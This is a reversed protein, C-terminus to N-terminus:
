RSTIAYRVLVDEVFETTVWDESGAFVLTTITVSGERRESSEAPRGLLGEVETRTMGKRLDVGGSPPPLPEPPPAFAVQLGPGGPLGLFDVYEALAAMVEAPRIGHPAAGAYRLNFRSGGTRRHAAVEAAKRASALERTVMIRRNERERREELERLEYEMERRRKRNEEDKIRRRLEQERKGEEVLPIYVSTSTDDWFTGFGGGGLQFEILDDKVKVLTVLVSEGARISPGFRRLRDRYHSFNMPHKSDVDLDVGDSTGPMDIKVVVRQGEFFAKLASEDQAMAHPGPLMLGVATMVIVRIVAAMQRRWTGHM